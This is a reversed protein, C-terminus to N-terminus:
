LLSGLEGLLDAPIPATLEADPPLRVRARVDSFLDAPSPCLRLAVIKLVPRGHSTVVLDEGTREVERLYELMRAKLASKSVLNAM